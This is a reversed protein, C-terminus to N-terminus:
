WGRENTSVPPINPIARTGKVKNQSTREPEHKPKSSLSKKKKDHPERNVHPQRNARDQCNQQQVVTTNGDDPMLPADTPTDAFGLSSVLCATFALTVARNTMNMNRGKKHSRRVKTLAIEEGQYKLRSDVDCEV